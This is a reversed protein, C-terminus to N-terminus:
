SSLLSVAFHLSCLLLTILGIYGFGGRQRKSPDGSYYGLSYAVRGALFVVGALSAIVPHAIGGSFLFMLFQPYNELTNQHARQICNFIKQDPNSSDAYMTPYEVRYKKRAKNVQFGQWLLVFASSVATLVVFGYEKSVVVAVM